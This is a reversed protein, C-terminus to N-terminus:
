FPKEELKDFQKSKVDTAASKTGGLNNVRVEKQNSKVYRREM